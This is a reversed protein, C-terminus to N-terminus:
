QGNEERLAIEEATVSREGTQEVFIANESCYLQCKGCVTCKGEEIVIPPFFGKENPVTGVELVKEKGALQLAQTMLAIIFPQSITQGEGIPLPIDEYALHQSVEPIFMEEKEMRELACRVSVPNKLEVLPDPFDVAEYEAIHDFKSVADNILTVM